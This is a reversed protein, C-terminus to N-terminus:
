PRTSGPGALFRWAPWRRAILPDVALRASGALEDLGYLAAFVVAYIVAAGIDTSGATYPGGFGEATSWVLLSFVFGAVYDLRRALGLILGAAILTETVATVVAFLVPNLGVLTQWFDFWPTLYAPQGTAADQLYGLYGSFFAPQWKLWADIAWLVGFVIRLLAVRTPLDIKPGTRRTM